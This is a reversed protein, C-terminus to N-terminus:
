LVFARLERRIVKTRMMQEKVDKKYSELSIGEKDLIKEFDEMSLNKQALINRITATVDEDSVAMGLKVAQHEILINDIMRNLYAEQTSKLLKEREAGTTNEEIKKRVPAFANNLDSQTIITDNVIVIIRDVIVASVPNAISLLLTLAFLIAGFRTAKM